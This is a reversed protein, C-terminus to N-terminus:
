ASTESSVSASPQPAAKSRREARFASWLLLAGGINIAMDAVNFVPFWQFDIFDVVHGQLFGGGGDRLLRDVVNGVAGGVVLGAAVAGLRSAGQRMSVLLAVIVGLAVVGIVPGLGRGQSFAMGSNFVLNLQLTWIVHITQDDLNNVAWSKTLQDVVVVLAAVLLSLRLGGARGPGSM